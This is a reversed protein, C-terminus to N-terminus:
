KGGPDLHPVIPTEVFNPGVQAVAHYRHQEQARQGKKRLPRLRAKKFRRKEYSPANGARETFQSRSLSLFVASGGTKDVLAVPLVVTQGTAEVTVIVESVEGADAAVVVQKLTGVRGDTAYIVGNRQFRLSRERRLFVEPAIARIDDDIAGHYTRPDPLARSVM